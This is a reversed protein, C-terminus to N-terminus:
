ITLGGISAECDLNRSASCANSCMPPTYCVFAQAWSYLKQDLLVPIPGSFKWKWCIGLHHQCLQEPSCGRLFEPRSWTRRVKPFIVPLAFMILYPIWVLTPPSLFFLDVEWAAAMGVCVSACMHMHACACTCACVPTPWLLNINTQM